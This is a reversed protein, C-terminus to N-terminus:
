NDPKEDNIMNVLEDISKSVIVSLAQVVQLAAFVNCGARRWIRKWYKKGLIMGILEAEIQYLDNMATENQFKDLKELSKAKEYWRTLTDKNGVNFSFFDEKRQFLHSDPWEVKLTRISSKIKVSGSLIKAM